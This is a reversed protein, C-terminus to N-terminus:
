CLGNALPWLKTPIELASADWKSTDGSRQGKVQRMVAYGAFFRRLHSTLNPDCKTSGFGGWLIVDYHCKKIM